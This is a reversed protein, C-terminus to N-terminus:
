TTKTKIFVFFAYLHMIFFSLLLLCVLIFAFFGLWSGSIDFNVLWSILLFNAVAHLILLAVRYFLKTNGSM